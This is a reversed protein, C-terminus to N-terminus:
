MIWVMYFFFSALLSFLKLFFPPEMSSLTNILELFSLQDSTTTLSCITLISHQVLPLNWHVGPKPHWVEGTGRERHMLSPRDGQTAKLHHPPGGVSSAPHHSIMVFTCPFTPDLSIRELLWSGRPRLRRHSPWVTPVPAEQWKLNLKLSKGLKGPM